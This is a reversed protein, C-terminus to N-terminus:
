HGPDHFLISATNSTYTGLVGSHNTRHRPSLSPAQFIVLMLLQRLVRTWGNLGKCYM